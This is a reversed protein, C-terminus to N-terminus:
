NMNLHNLIKYCFNLELLFLHILSNCDFHFFNTIMNKQKKFVIIAGSLKLLIYSEHGISVVVVDDDKIAVGLEIWVFLSFWDM